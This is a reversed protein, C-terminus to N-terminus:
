GVDLVVPIRNRRVAPIDLRREEVRMLVRALPLTPRVPRSPWTWLDDIADRLLTIGLACGICVGVLLAALAIM